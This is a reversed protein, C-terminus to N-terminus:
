TDTWFSTISVSTKMKYNVETRRGLTPISGDGNREVDM